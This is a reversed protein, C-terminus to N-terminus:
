KLLVFITEVPVALARAILLAIELTPLHKESEIESITSRGVGSLEALRQQTMHCAKRYERVKVRIM